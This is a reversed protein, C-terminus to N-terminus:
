AVLAVCPYLNQPTEVVELPLPRRRSPYEKNLLGYFHNQNNHPRFHGHIQTGFFHFRHNILPSDMSQNPVTLFLGYQKNSWFPGHSVAQIHNSSMLLMFSTHLIFSHNSSNYSIYNHTLWQFQIYSNVDNCEHARYCRMSDPTPARYPQEGSKTFTPQTTKPVVDLLSEYNLNHFSFYNIHIPRKPIPTFSGFPNLLGSYTHSVRIPTGATSDLFNQQGLSFM